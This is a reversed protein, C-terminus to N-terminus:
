WVADLHILRSVLTRSIQTRWTSCSRSYEQKGSAFWRAAPMRGTLGETPPDYSIIEFYDWVASWFQELGAETSWRWLADYDDFTLGTNTECFSMFEGV